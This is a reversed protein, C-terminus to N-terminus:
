WLGYHALKKSASNTMIILVLTVINAVFGITAPYSYSPLGGSFGLKYEYTSLVESVNLNAANQLLYSKEFGVSLLAGMKIVLQVIITPLITPLDIHWVRKWKSAGDVTAAEHLEKDVGSLAAYFLISEWGLNKWVGSWVYLHRYYQEGQLLNIDSGTIGELVRTALGSYGNFFLNILAVLIVTSLFHPFYTVMRVVSTLRKSRCYTMCIALAISFPMTTFLSYTSILLTNRVLKWANPSTFFRIFNKLGVYDSGTFGKTPKYDLFIIRLGYMPYYKMVLLYCMPIALMAYLQWQSCIDKILKSKSKKM